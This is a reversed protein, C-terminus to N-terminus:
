SLKFIHEKAAAGIGIITGGSNKIKLLSLLVNRKNEINKM